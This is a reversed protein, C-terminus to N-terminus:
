AMFFPAFREAGPQRDLVARQRTLVAQAAIAPQASAQLPAQDRRGEQAQARLDAKRLVRAGAARDAPRNERDHAQLAAPRSRLARKRTRTREDHFAFGKRVHPTLTGRPAALYLPTGASLCVLPPMTAYDDRIHAHETDLSGAVFRTDCKVVALATEDGVREM